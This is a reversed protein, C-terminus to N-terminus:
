KTASLGTEKYRLAYYKMEVEQIRNCMRKKIEKSIPQKVKNDKNQINSDNVTLFSSQTRERERQLKIIDLIYQTSDTNLKTGVKGWVYPDVTSQLKYPLGRLDSRTVKPYM